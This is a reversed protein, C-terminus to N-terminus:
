KSEEMLKKYMKKEIKLNNSRLCNLRADRIMNAFVFFANFSIMGLVLYNCMLGISYLKSNEDEEITIMTILFWSSITLNVWENFIETLNRSRLEFPM